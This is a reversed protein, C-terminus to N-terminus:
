LYGQNKNPKYGIPVSFCQTKPVSQRVYPSVKLVEMLLSDFTSKHLFFHTDFMVRYVPRDTSGRSGTRGGHIHTIHTNTLLPTGLM